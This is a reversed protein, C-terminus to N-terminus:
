CVKKLKTKSHFCKRRVKSWLWISATGAQREWTLLGLDKTSSLATMKHGEEEESM